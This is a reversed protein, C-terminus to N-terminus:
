QRADRHADAIRVEAAAHADVDGEEASRAAVRESRPEGRTDRTACCHRRREYGSEPHERSVAHGERSVALGDWSMDSAKEPQATAMESETDGEQPVLLHPARAAAPDTRMLGASSRADVAAAAIRHQQQRHNRLVRMSSLPV